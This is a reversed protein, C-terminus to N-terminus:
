EGSHPRPAGPPAQEHAPAVLRAAAVLAAELFLAEPIAEFVAGGVEVTRCSSDGCVSCCRSGGVRGGLWEELPRGAIWVRNSQSPDARFSAEDLERIELAPRIGVPHLMKALKRVARLMQEHTTDCRDCTRGDSTVLRQWVIPLSRMM